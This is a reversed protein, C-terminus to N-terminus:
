GGEGGEGRVEIEEDRERAARERIAVEKDALERRAREAIAARWGEQM